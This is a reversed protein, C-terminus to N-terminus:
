AVITPDWCYRKTGYKKEFGDLVAMEDSDLSWIPEVAAWNEEIREKSASKVLPIFGHQISWRILVQAPTVSITKDSDRGAGSDVSTIRTSVQEALGAIVPDNLLAGCGVASYAQIEIGSKRCFDILPIQTRYLGPHLEFQDAAPWDIRALGEM